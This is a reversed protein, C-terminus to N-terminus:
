SRHIEIAAREESIGSLELVTKHHLFKDNIRYVVNDGQHEFEALFGKDKLEEHAPTLAQKIRSIYRYDALPIQEKLNLLHEQWVSNNRRRQDVLRYLRKSLPSSLKWYFETDLGKLYGGLFSRIFIPHFRITSQSSTLDMKHVRKSFCVSWINFTDSIYSEADKSYFANQSEITTAAIRRLSSKLDRYAKGGEAWGLIAVLKYISFNLEGDEPMGGQRELLELVSLYVDQDIPGLAGLEGSPMVIWRRRIRLDHNGIMTTEFVLANAERNRRKIQFLPYEELNIEVRLLPVDESTRKSRLLTDGHRDL